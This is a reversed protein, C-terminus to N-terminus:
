ERWVIWRKPKAIIEPTIYSTCVRRKRPIRCNNSFIRGRSIINKWPPPHPPDLFYRACSCVYLCGQMSPFRNQLTKVIFLGDLAAYNHFCCFNCLLESFLYIIFTSHEAELTYTSRTKSNLVFALFEDSFDWVTFLNHVIELTFPWNEVAISGNLNFKM